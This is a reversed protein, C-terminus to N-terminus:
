IGATYWMSSQPTRRLEPSPPVMSRTIDSPIPWSGYSRKYPNRILGERTAEVSRSILHNHWFGLKLRSIQSIWSDALYEQPTRHAFSFVRGTAVLYSGRRSVIWAVTSLEEDHDFGAFVEMELLGLPRQTLYVASLTNKFREQDEDFLRRVGARM